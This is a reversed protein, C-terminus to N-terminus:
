IHHRYNTHGSFRHPGPSGIQGKWKVAAEIEGFKTPLGTACDVYKPNIEWIHSFHVRPLSVHCGSPSFIKIM